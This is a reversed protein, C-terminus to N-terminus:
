NGTADDCLLEQMTQSEYWCAQSVTAQLSLMSNM